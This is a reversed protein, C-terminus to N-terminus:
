NNRMGDWVRIHFTKTWINRSNKRLVFQRTDKQIYGINSYNDYGHNPVYGDVLPGLIFSRNPPIM